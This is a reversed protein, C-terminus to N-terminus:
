SRPAAELPRRTSRRTGVPGSVEYIEIAYHDASLLALSHASQFDNESNGVSTLSTDRCILGEKM